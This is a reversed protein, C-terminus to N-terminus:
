PKQQAASRRQQCVRLVCDEPSKWLSAEVFEIAASFDAQHRIERGLVLPALTPRDASRRDSHDDLQAILTSIAATTPAGSGFHPSITTAAMLNFGPLETSWASSM